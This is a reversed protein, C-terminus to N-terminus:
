IRCIVVVGLINKCSHVFELMVHQGVHHVRDKKGHGKFADGGSLHMSVCVFVNNFAQCEMM